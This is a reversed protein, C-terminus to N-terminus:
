KLHRASGPAEQPDKSLPMLPPLQPVPPLSPPQAVTAASHPSTASSIINSRPGLAPSSAPSVRVTNLMESLQQGSPTRGRLSCFGSGLAANYAMAPSAM